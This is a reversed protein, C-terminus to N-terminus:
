TSRKVFERVAKRFAPDKRDEKLAKAIKAWKRFDADTYRSEEKEVLVTKQMM